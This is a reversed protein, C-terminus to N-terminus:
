KIKKKIDTIELLIKAQTDWLKNLMSEVHKVRSLYEELCRALGILIDKKFM